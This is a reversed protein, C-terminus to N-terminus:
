TPMSGNGPRSSARSTQATSAGSRMGALNLIHMLALRAPSLLIGPLLDKAIDQDGTTPEIPMDTMAEEPGDIRSASAGISNALTMTGIPLRGMSVLFREAGMPQMSVHEVFEDESYNDYDFYARRGDRLEVM